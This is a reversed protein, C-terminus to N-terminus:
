RGVMLHTKNSKIYFLQNFGVNRHFYALDGMNHVMPHGNYV